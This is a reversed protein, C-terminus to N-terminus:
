KDKVHLQSPMWLVRTHETNCLKLVPTICNSLKASVEVRAHNPVFLEM